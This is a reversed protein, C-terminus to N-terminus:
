SLKRRMENFDEGTCEDRGYRAKEYLWHIEENQVKAAREAEEPTFTDRPKEGTGSLIWKRYLRRMQERPTRKKWLKPVIFRPPALTEMVDEEMGTKVTRAKEFSKRYGYLVRYVSYIALAALGIVLLFIVTYYLIEGLAQLWAPPEAQEEQGLLEELNMGQDTINEQEQEFEVAPASVEGSLVPDEPAGFYGLTVISLLVLCLVAMVRRNKKELRKGQFRYLKQNEQICFLVEERNRYLLCILFVFVSFVCARKKLYPFDEIYGVLYIVPGLGALAYFPGEFFGRHGRCRGYFCGVGGLVVGGLLCCREVMNRGFRPVVTLLVAFFLFYLLVSKKETSVWFLVLAAGFCLLLRWNFGGPCVFFPLGMLCGGFLIEYVSLERDKM